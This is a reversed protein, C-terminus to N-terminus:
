KSKLRAISDLAAAAKIREVHVIEQGEGLVACAYGPKAKCKLCPITIPSIPIYKPIKNM